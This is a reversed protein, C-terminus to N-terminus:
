SSSGAPPISRGMQRNRNPREVASSRRGLLRLRTRYWLERVRILSVIVWQPLIAIADRHLGAKLCVRGWWTLPVYFRPTAMETFGNRQKFTRLPTSGKNGYNFLGYTLYSVRKAACRAVAQAILANSPRKDHHADNTCLSLISAVDDRYVMKLVGVIEDGAYACLFESRDLFSSYDQKVQEFPKGYHVYKRGQRVPSSNNLAVLAAVLDDDLPRSEIRIGRKEARRVNKRTEQPLGQWWTDFDTLRIAAVSENEYGIQYKPPRGPVRQTFTFIDAPMRGAQAKLEDICKWPDNIETPLWDEDHVRAVKIWRGTAILTSGNYELAPKQVWSGRVSVAITTQVGGSGPEPVAACHMQGMAVCDADAGYLYKGRVPTLGMATLVKGLHDCLRIAYDMLREQGRIWAFPMAALYLPVAVVSKAVGAPTLLLRENQGRLLARKLYYRRTQREAPVVEYVIAENCWVFRRGREMMRRFFDQDEGGNGFVPRFPEEVDALITRRLFANGTRTQRWDLVLGTKHEPRESFRGRTLWTPPRGVHYPRVPGLIGDARYARWAQMMAALWDSAPFEDDDIFAVFDGEAEALAKNRALAINQEREVCYKVELTTRSRFEFVVERASEGNDNDAVVISHVFDAGDQGALADLLRRLSGPRKYTCICVCIRAREPGAAPNAPGPEPRTM